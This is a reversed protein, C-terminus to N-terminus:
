YPANEPQAGLKKIEIRLIKTLKPLVIILVITHFVFNIAMTPVRMIFQAMFPNGTLQSTWLTNLFLSTILSNSVTALIINKITIEKRYFFYTYILASAIKTTIFPFYFGGATPFILNSVIDIIISALVALSPNFISCMAATVIFGLGIKRSVTTISFFRSVVISLAIFFSLLILTRINKLNKM